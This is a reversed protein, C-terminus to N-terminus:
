ESDRMNILEDLSKWNDRRIKERWFERAAYHATHPCDFEAPLVADEVVVFHWTSDQWGPWEITRGETVVIVGQENITCDFTTGSGPLSMLSVPVAALIFLIFSINAIHDWPLKRWPIFHLVIGTVAAIILYEM